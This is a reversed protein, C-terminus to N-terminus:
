EKGGKKTQKQGEERRRAEKKRRKERYRRDGREPRELKQQGGGLEAPQREDRPNEARQPEPTSEEVPGEPGKAEDSGQSESPSSQDKQEKGVTKTETDDDGVPDNTGNLAEEITISTGEKGNSRDYWTIGGDKSFTSSSRKNQWIREGVAIQGPSLVDKTIEEWEAPYNTVPTLPRFSALRMFLELALGASNGSHGQNAFTEILELVHKAIMGNYDLDGEDMPNIVGIFELEFKAHKVLNSEPKKVKKSM